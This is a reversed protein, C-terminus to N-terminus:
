TGAEIAYLRFNEFKEHCGWFILFQNSIGFHSTKDLIEAELAKRDDLFSGSGVWPVVFRRKRVGWGFVGRLEKESCGLGGVSGRVWKKRVAQVGLAVLRVVFGKKRVGGFWWPVRWRVVSSCLVVSGGRFM